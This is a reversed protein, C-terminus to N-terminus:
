ASPSAPMTTLVQPATTKPRQRAPGRRPRRQANRAAMSLAERAAFRVEGEATGLIEALEVFAAEDTRRALAALYALQELVGCCAAFCAGPRAGSAAAWKLAARASEAELKRRWAWGAQM